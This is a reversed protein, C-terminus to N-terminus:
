LPQLSEATWVKLMRHMAREQVTKRPDHYGLDEVPGLDKVHLGYRSFAEEYFQLSRFVVPFGQWNGDPRNAVNVSGYFYGDDKIHRRIFSITDYLIKDEMHILVVYAWFYDFEQELNLSSIDAVAILTPEKDVLESEQLEKRGEDLVEQRVEIGFYHWKELYDIIPIGGRLTGCGLDLLYHQSKLGIQKLFRIQFDRNM